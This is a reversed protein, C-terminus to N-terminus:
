CASTSLAAAYDIRYPPHGGPAPDLRFRLVWHTCTEGDPGQAAAQHSTFSVTADVVGSGASAVGLLAVQRDQTTSLASSWASLSHLRNQQAPTNLAFARAYNGADIANFYDSLTAGAGAALPNGAVAALKASGPGSPTPTPSPSRSPSPQSTASPTMPGGSPAAAPTAARRLSLPAHSPHHPRFALYYVAAGAGAGLAVVAFGAALLPGLSRRTSRGSRAAWSSGDWYRM